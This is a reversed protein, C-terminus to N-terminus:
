FPGKDLAREIRPALEVRRRDAPNALKARVLLYTVEPRPAKVKLVDVDRDSFTVLQAAGREGAAAPLALLWCVAFCAAVFLARGM